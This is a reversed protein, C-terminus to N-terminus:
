GHGHQVPVVRLPASRQDGPAASQRVRRRRRWVDRGAPSAFPFPVPAGIRHGRRGDRCLGDSRHQGHGVATASDGCLRCVRRACGRRGHGLNEAHRHFRSQRAPGQESAFGYTKRRTGANISRHSAARKTKKKSRAMGKSSRKAPNGLLFSVLEPNKRIPRTRSRHSTKKRKAGKPPNRKAPAHRKAKLAAKQRKTGFHKIQKASMKRRSKAMSKGRERRAPNQIEVDVVSHAM